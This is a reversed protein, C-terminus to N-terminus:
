ENEEEQERADERRHEETPSEAPVSEGTKWRTVRTTWRSPYASANTAVSTVM